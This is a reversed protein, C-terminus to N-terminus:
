VFVDPDNSGAVDVTPLFSGKAIKALVNSEIGFHLPKAFSAQLSTTNKRAKVAFQGRLTGWVNQDNVRTPVIQSEHWGLVKCNLHCPAQHLEM